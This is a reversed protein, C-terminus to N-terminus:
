VEERKDLEAKPIFRADAAGEGWGVYFRAIDEVSHDDGLVYPGQDEGEHVVDPHYGLLYAALNIVGGALICLLIFVGTILGEHGNLYHM